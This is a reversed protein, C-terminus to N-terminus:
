SESDAQPSQQETANWPPFVVPSGSDDSNSPDPELSELAQGLQRALTKVHPEQLLTLHSGPVQLVSLDECVSEWESVPDGKTRAIPQEGLVLLTRGQYSKPRYDVMAHINEILTQCIQHQLSTDAGPPIFHSTKGHRHVCAVQEEPTM